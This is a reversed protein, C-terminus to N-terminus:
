RIRPPPIPRNVFEGINPVHDLRSYRSEILVSPLFLARAAHVQVGARQEALREAAMGLNTRLAEAVLSGRPDSSQAAGSTAGGLGILLLFAFVRLSTALMTM